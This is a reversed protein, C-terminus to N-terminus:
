FPPLIGDAFAKALETAATVACADEEADPRIGYGDEFDIPYDEIPERQLKATARDHVADSLNRPIGTADALSDASPAYEAFARAALKGLKLCTDAKFLHAGGYVVHVPQRKGSEGPHAATFARNAITLPDM